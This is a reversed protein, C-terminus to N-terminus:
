TPAAVSLLSPSVGDYVALRLHLGLVVRGAQDPPVQIGLSRLYKQVRTRNKLILNM